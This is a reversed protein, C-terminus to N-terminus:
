NVGMQPSVLFWYFTEDYRSWFSRDNSAKISGSLELFLRDSWSTTTELCVRRYCWFWCKYLLLSNYICYLSIIIHPLFRPKIMLVMALQRIARCVRVHIDILQTDSTQHKRTGLFVAVTWIYWAQTAPSTEPPSQHDSQLIPDWHITTLPSRIVVM